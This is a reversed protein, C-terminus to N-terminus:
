LLDALTFVSIGGLGAPLEVGRPLPAGGLHEEGQLFAIDGFLVEGDLESSLASDEFLPVSEVLAFCKENGSLGTACHTGHLLDITTSSRFLVGTGSSLFGTYIGPGIRSSSFVHAVGRRFEAVFKSCKSSPDTGCALRNESRTTSSLM